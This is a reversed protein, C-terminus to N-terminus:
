SVAEQEDKDKAKGLISKMSNKFSVIEEEPVNIQTVVAHAVGTKATLDVIDGVEVAEPTYYTYDRGSPQGDRMFKVKIIDTM